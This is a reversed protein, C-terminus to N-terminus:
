GKKHTEKLTEIPNEQGKIQANQCMRKSFIVERVMTEKSIYNVKITETKTPRRNKEKFKGIRKKAGPIRSEFKVTLDVEEKM